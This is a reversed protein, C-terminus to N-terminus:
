QPKRDGRSDGALVLAKSLGLIANVLSTNEASGAMSMSLCLIISSGTSIAHACTSCLQFQRDRFITSVGAIRIGANHFAELAERAAAINDVLARESM